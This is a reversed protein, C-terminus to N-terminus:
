LSATTLLNNSLFLGRMVLRRVPPDREAPLLLTSTTPDARPPTGTASVAGTDGRTAETASVSDGSATPLSLAAASATTATTTTITTTLTGAWEEWSFDTSCTGTICEWPPWQGLLEM